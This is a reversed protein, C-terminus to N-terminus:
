NSRLIEILNRENLIEPLVIGNPFKRSYVIYFPLGKRGYKEMFQLVEANYNTWDIDITKVDYQKIAQQVAFSDLVTASNFKCTLCWDAEIRILVTQNDKLYSNITEQMLENQRINKLEERRKEYAFHTDTLGIAVIALLLGGFAYNFIKRLKIRTKPDTDQKDITFMVTKRFWLLSLFFLTYLGIRVAAATGTQASLVTLLWVLTLILMLIMLQEMRKVWPGPHPVFGSLSPSLFLILYPLALGTGVAALVLLIDWGSGTLAFGLATGLYPASCPTALLVLFLGTLFNLLDESRSKDNLIRNIWQPTSINILGGIQGMFLILVMIILVLFSTNQFQMGWGVAYGLSKLSTLFAALLAFATYIGITTLMFSRRIKSESSGGFGSLALLKLSLVPFVCPMFNLIFGGAFALLMIGLSLQNMEIDFFPAKKITHIQRIAKEPKEAATITVKKGVGSINNLAPFRATIKNGNISLRPAGFELGENNDAFVNFRHLDKGTEFVIRLIGNGSDEESKDWFVTNIKIENNYEQPLTNYTRDIYNFLSTNQAAGAALMLEPHFVMEKCSQSNCFQGKISTKLILPKAANDAWVRVPIIFDKSYMSIDKDPDSKREPFPMTLEYAKLNESRSFDIQVKRGQSNDLYWGYPLMFNIAARIEGFNGVKSYDSILRTKIQEENSQWDGVGLRGTFPDDYLVGYFPLKRLELKSLMGQLEAFNRRSPNEKIADRELKAEIAEFNRRDSVYSIVKKIDVVVVLKDSVIYPDTYPQDYDEDDVILPPEEPLMMKSVLNEVLTDIGRFNKVVFRINDERDYIAQGKLNPFMKGVEESFDDDIATGPYKRNFYTYMKILNLFNEGIGITEKEEDEPNAILPKLEADMIDYVPVEASVMGAAASEHVTNEAAASGAALPPFLLFALILFKKM